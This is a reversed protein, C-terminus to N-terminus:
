TVFKYQATELKACLWLLKPTQSDAMFLLGGLFTVFLECDSVLTLRPVSINSLPKTFLVDAHIRSIIM